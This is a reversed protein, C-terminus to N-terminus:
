SLEEIIDECTDVSAFLISSKVNEVLRAYEEPTMTSYDIDAGRVYAGRVYAHTTIDWFYIYYPDGRHELTGDAVYPPHDNWEKAYDGQLKAYDGKGQAGTAETNANTAATNATDIATLVNTHDTSAQSHDSVATTHDASATTHDTGATAIAAEIQPKMNNLWDAWAEASAQDLDSLFTYPEAATSPRSNRIWLTANDPDTPETTTAIICFQGSEVNAADDLMDNKSEYVHDEDIAFGVNVTKQVGNRNTIIVTTGNVDADVNEAETAAQLAADKAQTTQSKITDLDSINNTIPRMMTKLTTQVWEGNTTTSPIILASLNEDTMEALTLDRVKQGGVQSGNEELFEIIVNIIEQKEEQTM